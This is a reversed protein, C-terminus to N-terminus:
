EKGGQPSPPQGQDALSPQNRSLFDTMAKGIGIPTHVAVAESLKADQMDRFKDQADNDFLGDALKAQRMSKLMMGVFLSEFKQGAAKLNDGTALRSTDPAAVGAAQIPTTM